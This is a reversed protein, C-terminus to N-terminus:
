LHTLKNIISNGIIEASDGFLDKTEINKLHTDDWKFSNEQVIEKIRTYKGGLARIRTELSVNEKFLINISLLKSIKGPGKSHDSIVPIVILSRGDKLGKGVHVNGEKIIIHKTGKLTRDEDIRSHINKLIGTKKEVTIRSNDTIEGLMDLGSIGYVLYGKM